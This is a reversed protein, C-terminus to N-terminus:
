FMNEYFLACVILAIKYYILIYDSVVGFYFAEM